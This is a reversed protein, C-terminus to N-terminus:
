SQKLRYIFIINCSTFFIRYATIFYFIVLQIFYLQIYNSIIPYFIVLQIM